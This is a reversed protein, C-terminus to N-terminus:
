RRPPTALGQSVLMWGILKYLVRAGVNGDWEDGEDGPVVENLDVGVITRGSRVVQAVVACAEHFSLGGPVPTGTHPCLTPDLGDVDFSVYVKEPLDEVVRAVQQAWSEGAFRRAALDVDFHTRIRGGSGTIAAYEDESLDRIGVQVLRAVGPLAAMVNHMISAHSHAFGEYAARLDAHADFHLIGMGPHREAHARIAGFPAAHDGGLLAVLKGRALADATTAYVWDNVAESLANVRALARALAADGAIRGGVAIVQEAAARAEADWGAVHEPEPLMAIGAAYPRGTEVDFLDVQRSAALVAAPGRQAGGGYSTTAAWPVPVVVVRAQEVTYPLGYIGSDAPAAGSPDFGAAAAAVAGTDAGAHAGMNTGTNTSM